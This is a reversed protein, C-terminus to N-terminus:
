PIIGFGVMAIVWPLFYGVPYLAIMLHDVMRVEHIRGATEARQLYVNLMTLLGGVVFASAMVTDMFTVYGLRPLDNSITFSFAIFLLLHGGTVDIRKRYDKLFFTMWSVLLIIMLPVFIKMVYYGLHRKTIIHFTFRSKLDDTLSTATDYGSIMWEEVGVQKGIGNKTPSITFKYRESAYVSDVQIYFNQSDFPFQRFDMDSAQLTASFREMYHATGNSEVSITLGQSYRRGQMNYIVFEPWRLHREELFRRFGSEDFSRFSCHCSAPSFAYGLDRWQMRLTAVVGFKEERQVIGTIQDLQISIAVPIPPRAVAMGREAIEGGDAVEPANSGLTMRYGGFSEADGSLRLRYDQAPGRFRYGLTASHGDAAATSRALVKPGYDLLQVAPARKGPPGEIRLTLEDGAEFPNLTLVARPRAANLEGSIQQVRNNPPSVSADVAVFADGTAATAQVPPVAPNLALVLRFRGFSADTGGGGSVPVPAGAVLLLFDGDGPVEAGLSADYGTDDDRAWALFTAGAVKALAERADRGEAAARESEEKLRHRFAATDFPPAVLALLPSLNGSTGHLHGAIRDGRKLGTLRYGVLDNPEVTGELVQVAAGAARAGSAVGLLTAVVLATGALVRGIRSM